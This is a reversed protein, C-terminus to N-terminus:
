GRGGERWGRGRQGGRSENEKGKGDVTRTPRSMKQHNELLAKAIVRAPMDCRFVHCRHKKTVQDRAVYGFDRHPLM